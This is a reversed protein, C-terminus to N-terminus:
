ANIHIIAPLMYAMTKGSGTKAIGILDNGSM